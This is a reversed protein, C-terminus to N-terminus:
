SSPLPRMPPHRPRPKPVKQPTDLFRPGWFLDWYGAQATMTWQPPVSALAQKAPHRQHGSMADDSRRKEDPAGQLAHSIRENGLTAQFVSGWRYSCRRLACPPNQLRSPPERFDLSRSPLMAAELASFLLGLQASSARTRRAGVDHACHCAQKECQLTRFVGPPLM